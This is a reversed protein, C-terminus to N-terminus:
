AQGALDGGVPSTLTLPAPTKRSETEWGEVRAEGKLARRPSGSAVLVLVFAPAYAYLYRSSYDGVLRWSPLMAMLMVLAGVPYAWVVRPFRGENWLRKGGVFCGAIVLAGSLSFGWNNPADGPAYAAIAPQAGPFVALPVIRFLLRRVQMPWEPWTRFYYDSGVHFSGFEQTVPQRDFYQFVLKPVTAVGVFMLGFLSLWILQRRWAPLTRVGVLVTIAMAAGLAFGICALVLALKSVSPSETLRRYAYPSVALVSAIAWAVRIRSGFIARWGEIRLLCYAIVLPGSVPFIYYLLGASFGMTLAKGSWKSLTLLLFGLLATIGVPYGPLAAIGVPLFGINFLLQAACWISCILAPLFDLLAQFYVSVLGAAIATFVVGLVRYPVLNRGGNSFGASFAELVPAMYTSPVLYVPPRGHELTFRITPLVFKTEDGFPERPSLAAPLASALVVVFMLSPLAIFRVRQRTFQKYAETM